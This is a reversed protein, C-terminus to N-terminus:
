AFYWTSSNGKFTYPFMRCAVYEHEVNRLRVVLMIKKIHDKVLKKSDPDFKPLWKKPNKPLPHQPGSVVVVDQELWPRAPNNQNAMHALTQSNNSTQSQEFSSSDEDSSEGGLPPPSPSPPSPPLISGGVGLILM